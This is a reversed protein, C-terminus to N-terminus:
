ELYADKYVYMYVWMVQASELAPALGLVFQSWLWSANSQRDASLVLLFM